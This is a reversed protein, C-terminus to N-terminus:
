RVQPAQPATTPIPATPPALGQVPLTGIVASEAAPHSVYEVSEGTLRMFAEELSGTQAALEHLTIGAGGALDGIQEMASGTVVLAGDVASVVM